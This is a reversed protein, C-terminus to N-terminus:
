DTLEQKTKGFKEVIPDVPKPKSAAMLEAEFREAYAFLAKLNDLM